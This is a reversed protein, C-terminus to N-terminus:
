EEIERDTVTVTTHPVGMGKAAIAGWELDHSGSLGVTICELNAFRAILASDVGGSLAVIGEDSRLRVATVIAQELDVPEFRPDVHGRVGGSCVLAGPPIPAPIIGFHDRAECDNLSLAFEGGFEVISEPRSRVIEEVESPSIKEGQFEVWGLLHM